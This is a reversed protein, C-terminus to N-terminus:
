VLREWVAEFINKHVEYIDPDEIIVAMKKNERATIYTVTNNYIMITTHFPKLGSLIKIKTIEDQKEVIMKKSYYDDPVIMNKEIKNKHRKEVYEKNDKELYPVISDNDIYQLILTKSRLSHNMAIKIGEEGEFFQVNPKGAILNFKSTFVGLSHILIERSLSFEKQKRDFNELLLSPHNASFTSVTGTGGKKSVLGQAELQELTKYILGRKVGTWVSLARAKQPGRELLAEYAIAQEESLGSEILITIENKM